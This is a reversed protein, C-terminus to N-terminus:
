RSLEFLNTFLIENETSIGWGVNIDFMNIQKFHYPSDIPTCNFSTQEIKTACGLICSLLIIIILVVNKKM